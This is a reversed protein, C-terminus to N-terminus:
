LDYIVFATNDPQSFYGGGSQCKSTNHESINMYNIASILLKNNSNQTLLKLLLRYFSM